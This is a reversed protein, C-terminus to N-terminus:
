LQRLDPFLVFLAAVSREAAAAARAETEVDHLLDHLSMAAFHRHGGEFADTRAHDDLQRHLFRAVRAHDGGRARRLLKNTAPTAAKRTIERRDTSGHCSSRGRIARNKLMEM